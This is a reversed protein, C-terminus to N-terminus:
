LTLGPLAELANESSHAHIHIDPHIHLHFNVRYKAGFLISLMAHGSADENPSKTVNTMKAPHETTRCFYRPIDVGGDDRIFLRSLPM